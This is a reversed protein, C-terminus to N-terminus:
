STKHSNKAIDISQNLPFKVPFGRIKHYFFLLNGASTGEIWHSSLLLGYLFYRVMMGTMGWHHSFVDYWFSIQNCKIHSKAIFM